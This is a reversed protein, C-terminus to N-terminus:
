LGHRATHRGIRGSKRDIAEALSRDDPALRRGLYEQLFRLRELKSARPSSFHLQSLDKVIWRWPLSPHRRVRGLDIVSIEEPRDPTLLLHCLYLDQHHLGAAHMGRVLRALKILWERRRRPNRSEADSAPDEWWHDLRTHPEIATAVTFSKGNAEGLAVPLPAPIGLERFWHMAQWEAKAGLVPWTLRLWAKLWEQWRPPGHRKLYFGRSVGNDDLAFRGTVREGVQRAVSDVARAAIADFTTLGHRQLLPAFDAQVLLRGEDWSLTEPQAVTPADGPQYIKLVPPLSADASSTLLSTM